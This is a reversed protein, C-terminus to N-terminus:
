GSLELVAPGRLRPVLRRVAFANVDRDVGQMTEEYYKDAHSEVVRQEDSAGADPGQKASM